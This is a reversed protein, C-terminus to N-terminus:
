PYDLKRIEKSTLKPLLVLDIDTTDPVIGALATRAENETAYDCAIWWYGESNIALWTNM